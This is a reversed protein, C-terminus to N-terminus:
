ERVEDLNGRSSLIGATGLHIPTTSTHLVVSGASVSIGIATAKTDAAHDTAIALLSTWLAEQLIKGWRAALVGNGRPLEDTVAVLGAPDKDNGVAFVCILPTRGTQDTELDVSLLLLRDATKIRLNDLHVLVEDGRDVWVMGKLRLVAANGGALHQAIAAALTTDNFQKRIKPDANPDLPSAPPLPTGASMHGGDSLAQDDELLHVTAAFRKM